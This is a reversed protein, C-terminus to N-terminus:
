VGFDFAGGLGGKMITNLLSEGKAIQEQIQGLPNLHKLTWQQWEDGIGGPLFSATAAGVSLMSLLTASSIVILQRRPKM